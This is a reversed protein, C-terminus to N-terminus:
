YLETRGHHRLMETFQKVDQSRQLAAVLLAEPTDIVALGEVGLLAVLRKTTSYVLNNTADITLTDGHLLNAQADRDTDRLDYLAYWSGVDSWGFDGKFVLIPRTTKEMVGYDISIAQLQRYVRAVVTEYEASGMAAEITRLGEHLAPMCAAIAALITAATFVFIGSNWLYQGSALYQLATELDPKEVFRTVDFYPRDLANDRQTGVEIYGYGTEPRTPTIGITVIAGSRAVAAAAQVTQAFSATDAVFHDSPLVVIPEDPAHQHIYLAALGICAATNRGLPEVLM